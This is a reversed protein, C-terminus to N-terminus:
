INTSPISLTINEFRVHKKWEEICYDSEYLMGKLIFPRNSSVFIRISYLHPIGDKLYAPTEFRTRVGTTLSDADCSFVGARTNVSQDDPFLTATFKLTYLRSGALSVEFGVASIDNGDPFYYNREGPWVNSSRERMLMVEKELLSEMESLEGLIKDYIKILKKPKSIFYYQLTKDFEKKTYGHKEAIYHYTSISDISLVWNQIRPNALLGDALHIEELLPILDREPIIGSRDPKVQKGTCSLILFSSILFIVFNRITMKISKM